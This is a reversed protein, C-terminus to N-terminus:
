IPIGLQKCFKKAAEYFVTEPPHIRTFYHLCMQIHRPIGGTSTNIGGVLGESVDGKRAMDMIEDPTVYRFSIGEENTKLSGGVVVCAYTIAVDTHKATPYEGIPRFDAFVVNLGTEERVERIVIQEPTLSNEADKEDVGGGPLNWRGDWKPVKTNPDVGWGRQVLLLKGIEGCICGFRGYSGKVNM